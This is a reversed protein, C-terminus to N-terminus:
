SLVAEVERAEREHVKSWKNVQEKWGGVGVGWSTTTSLSGPVSMLDHGM